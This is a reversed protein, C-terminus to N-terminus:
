RDDDDDTEAGPVADLRRWLEELLEAVGEGTHASIVWEGAARGRATRAMREEPALVDAKTLVRM